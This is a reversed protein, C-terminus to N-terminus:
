QKEAVPSPTARSRETLELFPYIPDNPEDPNVFAALDQVHLLLVWKTRQSQNAVSGHVLWPNFIVGDGASLELTQTTLGRRTLEDREISLSAAGEHRYRFSERHSGPVVDMSGHHRDVDRLPIWLRWATRCRTTAYDQHLPLFYTAEGPLDARLTPWVIPVAIEAHRLLGAEELATGIETSLRLLSFLRKIHDFLMARHRGASRLVDAIAEDSTRAIGRQAALEEGAVAIDHEFRALEQSHVLGKLVAFGDRELPPFDLNVVRKAM